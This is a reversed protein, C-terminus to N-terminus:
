GPRDLLATLRRTCPNDRVHSPDALESGAAQLNGIVKVLIVGFRVAALVENYLAQRM